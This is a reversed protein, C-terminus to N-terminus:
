GQKVTLPLGSVMLIVRSAREAVLQNIWGQLEVFKRGAETTAHVGMGIENTVIIWDNDVTFLRELEARAVSLTTDMDGNADSFLNTLWLTVCDVVVVNGQEIRSINIEEEVTQWRQDRDHQHRTIRTKFEDDWRRATAVYVPAASKSIALNQAYRSKGSREGGTILTLTM